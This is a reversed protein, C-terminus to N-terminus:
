EIHSEKLPSVDIYLAEAFEVCGQWWQENLYLQRLNELEEEMKIPLMQVAFYIKVVENVFQLWGGGTERILGMNRFYPLNLDSVYRTAEFYRFAHRRGDLWIALEGLEDSWRSVNLDFSSTALKDAEWSFVRDLLDAVFKPVEFDREVEQEQERLLNGEVQQWYGVAANLLLPTSIFEILENHNHLFDIVRDAILELEQRILDEVSRTQLPEFSLTPFDRLRGRIMNTRCTLIVKIHQFRKIFRVVAEITQERTNSQMEDLADLCVLFHAPPSDLASVIIDVDFDPDAQLCHWIGGQELLRQAIVNMDDIKECAFGNLNVFIPIINKPRYIKSDIELEQELEQLAQSALYGTIGELFTTKGAGPWGAIFVVREVSSSLFDDVWEKINVFEGDKKKVNWPIYLNRNEQSDFRNVLKTLYNQWERRILLVEDEQSIQNIDPWDKKPREKRCYRVLDHLGQNLQCHKILSLVKRKRTDGPLNEYEIELDFCLQQIESLDFSKEIKDQLDQLNTM